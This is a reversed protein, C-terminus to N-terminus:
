TRSGFWKPAGRVVRLLYALPVLAAPIRPYVTRVYAVPPFLHERLLRLRPKLGRLARWDQQLLSVQSADPSLFADPVADRDGAAAFAQRLLSDVGGFADEAMTLGVHCVGELHSARGREVVSRRRREDLGSALLHIDYLWILHSTNQHHALRHLCSILLHDALDPMRASTSLSPVGVANSWLTDFTLRDAYLVPNVLKWHVDIVHTLPGARRTMCRQPMILDGTTRAEPQYGMRRLIDFFTDRDRPRILIDSDTSPRLYPQPYVSHALAAGKFLLASIDHDALAVVVRRLEHTRLAEVIAAARLERALEDFGDVLGRGARGARDAVLLHVGHRRAEDLADRSLKLTPVDARLWATLEHYAAM